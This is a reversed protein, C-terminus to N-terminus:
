RINREEKGEDNKNEEMSKLKLEISDRLFESMSIEERDTIEIIKSIMEQTMPCCINKIYKAKKM